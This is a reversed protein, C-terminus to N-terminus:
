ASALRLQRLLLASLLLPIGVLGLVRAVQRARRRFELRAELHALSREARAEHSEDDPLQATARLFRKQRSLGNPIVPIM